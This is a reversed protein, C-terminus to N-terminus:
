VSLDVITQGIGGQNANLYTSALINRADATMGLLAFDLDRHGGGLGITLSIESEGAYVLESSAGLLDDGM